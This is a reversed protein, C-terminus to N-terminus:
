TQGLNYKKTSQAILNFLKCSFHLIFPCVNGIFQTLREQIAQVQQDGVVGLIPVGDLAGGVVRGFEGTYVIYVICARAIM